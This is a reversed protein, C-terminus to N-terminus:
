IVEQPMGNQIENNLIEEYIDKAKETEQYNHFVNLYSLYLFYSRTISSLLYEM